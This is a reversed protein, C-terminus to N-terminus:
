KVDPRHTLGALRGLLVALELLVEDSGAWGIFSMGAPVGALTGIPITIQPLGSIGAICTLRMVRVRFLELDSATSNKL